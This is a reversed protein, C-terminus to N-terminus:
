KCMTLDTARAAFILPRRTNFQKAAVRRAEGQRLKSSNLPSSERSAVASL